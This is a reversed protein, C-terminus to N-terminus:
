VVVEPRIRDAKQLTLFKFEDNLMEMMLMTNEKGPM